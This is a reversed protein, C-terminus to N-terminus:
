SASPPAALAPTPAPWVWRASYSRMASPSCCCTCANGFPPSESGQESILAEDGLAREAISGADDAHADRDFGIALAAIALALREAPTEGALTALRRMRQQAEAAILAQAAAGHLAARRAAPLDLCIAARIIPHALATASHEAIGARALQALAAVAAGLGLGATAAVVRSTAPEGLVALAAAAAVVSEEHRGLRLLVSRSVAPPALSRVRSVVAADLDVADILEGVIETLYFPTGGTIERCARVMEEPVDRGLRASILRGTGCETLPPPELGRAGPEHALLDLARRQGLPADIRASVVILLRLGELRRALYLLFRLSEEDAWHADDIVLALPGAAIMNCTLWFVAHDIDGGAAPRSGPRAVGLVVGALGAPGQLLRAREDAPTDLV